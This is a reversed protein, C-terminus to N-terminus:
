PNYLRSLAKGGSLYEFVNLKDLENLLQGMSGANFKHLINRIHTKVTSMEVYRLECIKQRTLGQHALILIDIETQTLQGVIQLTYLLSLEKKKVRQFEARIKQAIVPRIPSQNYFADKMCTVIEDAAANKLLYDSVGLQFAAFVTEDDEYVTLIVVKTRPSAALIQRAADLGATRTEMEIDLLAIDPGWQLAANVAEEGTYVAAAVHLDPDSNLIHEYRKCIPKIDEALVIHIMFM